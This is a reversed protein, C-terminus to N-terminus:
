LGRSKRFEKLTVPPAGEIERIRNEHDLLVLNQPDPEPEPEPTPVYPDPVGGDSLWRQYEEWDRNAMDNPICAGDVTRTVSQDTAMLQYDAMM